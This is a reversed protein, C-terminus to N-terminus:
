AELNETPKLQAKPRRASNTKYIYFNVNVEGKKVKKM